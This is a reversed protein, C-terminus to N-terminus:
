VIWGRVIAAVDQASGTSNNIRVLITNGAGSTAGTTSVSGANVTDMQSAAGSDYANVSVSANSGGGKLQCEIRTLVFTEGAQLAFRHIEEDSLGTAYNTMGQEFAVPEVALDADELPYAGFTDSAALNQLADVASNEIRDDSESDYRPSRNTM